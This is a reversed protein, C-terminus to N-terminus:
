TLEQRHPQLKGPLMSRDPVASKRAAGGLFNTDAINGFLTTTEFESEYDPADGCAQGRASWGM